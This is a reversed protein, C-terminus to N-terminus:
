LKSKELQISAQWESKVMILCVQRIFPLSCIANCIQMLHSPPKQPAIIFVFDIYLKKYEVKHKVLWLKDHTQKIQRIFCDVNLISFFYVYSLNYNTCLVFLPVCFTTCIIQIISYNSNVFIFRKDWKQTGNQTGGIM